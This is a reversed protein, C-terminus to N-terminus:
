KYSNDMAKWVNADMRRIKIGPPAEDDLEVFSDTSEDFNQPFVALCDKNTFKSAYLIGEIGAESVLQGFIQSSFPVDFVMPWERWDPSLLVDVLKSATRILDPEPLGIRTADKKLSESISFDKILDMFPKLREPQKLDIISDLRGSLSVVAISEHKTLAFDLPDLKEKDKRPDIEQSLLEQIATDKDSAMYLASFQPFQSLNIDGINFRGGPDILSGAVSFPELAYKYKIARQWNEYKFDSQAGELLAKKIEDIIKSRQYALDNYFDWHFKLFKDKFVAGKSISEKSFVDLLFSAEPPQKNIKQKPKYRPLRKRRRM